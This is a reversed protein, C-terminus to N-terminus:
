QSSVFHLERLARALDPRPGIAQSVKGIQPTGTRRLRAVLAPGDLLQGRQRAVGHHRVLVAIHLPGRCLAQSM